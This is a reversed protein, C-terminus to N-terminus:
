GSIEASMIDLSKVEESDLLKEFNAKLGDFADKYTMVMLVYHETYLVKGVEAQVCIWKRVDAKEAIEKALEESNVDNTRILVLSHANTMIKGESCVAEIGDSWSVFGYAEFASEDLDFVEYEPLKVDKCVTEIMDTLKISANEDPSKPTETGTKDGGNCGLIGVSMLLCLLVVIIKKM